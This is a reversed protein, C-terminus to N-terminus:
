NKYLTVSENITDLKEFTILPDFIINKGTVEKLPKIYEAIPTMGIEARRSDLNEPEAIPYFYITDGKDITQSGYIQATRKYVRLRDEMTALQVQSIYGKEASQKIYPLYKEINEMDSHQIVLWITNLSENSLNEPVGHKDLMKFVTKQNQKDCKEMKEVADILAKTDGSKQASTLERRMQQDSNHVKRLIAEYDKASTVVFAFLSLYTVIWFRKM